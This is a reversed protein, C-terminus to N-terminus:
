IEVESLDKWYKDGSATILSETLEVTEAPPNFPDWYPQGTETNL